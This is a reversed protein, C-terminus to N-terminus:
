PHSRLMTGIANWRLSVVGLVRFHWLTKTPPTTTDAMNKLFSYERFTDIGLGHWSDLDLM